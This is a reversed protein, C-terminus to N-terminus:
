SSGASGCAGSRAATARGPNPYCHLLFLAACMFIVFTRGPDSAPRQDLAETLFFRSRTRTRTPDRRGRHARPLDRRERAKLTRLPVRM